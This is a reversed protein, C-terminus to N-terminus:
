RTLFYLIGLFVIAFLFFLGWSLANVQRRCAPHLEERNLSSHRTMWRDSLLFVVVGAGSVVLPLRIGKADVGSGHTTIWAVMAVGLVAAVGGLLKCLMLPLQRFEARTYRTINGM